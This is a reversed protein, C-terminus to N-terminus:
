HGAAIIFALAYPVLSILPHTIPLCCASGATGDALVASSLVWCHNAANQM